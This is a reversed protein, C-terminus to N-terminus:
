SRPLSLGRPAIVLQLILNRTVRMACQERVKMATGGGDWGGQWRGGRGERRGAERVREEDRERAKRCGGGGEGGDCEQRTKPNVM